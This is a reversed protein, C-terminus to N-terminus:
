EKFPLEITGRPLIFIREEGQKALRIFYNKELIDTAPFGRKKYRGFGELESQLSVQTM